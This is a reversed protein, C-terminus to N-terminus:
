WDLIKKPIYIYLCKMKTAKQNKLMKLFCCYLSTVHLCYVQWDTKILDRYISCALVDAVWENPINFVSLRDPFVHHDAFFFPGSEMFSCRLGLDSQADACDSRPRRQEDTTAASGLSETVQCCHGSWVAHIRLHAPHDPGAICAYLMLINKIRIVHFPSNRKLM